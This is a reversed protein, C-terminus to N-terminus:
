LHAQKGRKSLVEMESTGSRGEQLFLKELFLPPKWAKERGWLAESLVTKLLNM